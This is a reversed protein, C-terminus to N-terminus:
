PKGAMGAAAKGLQRSSSAWANISKLTELDFTGATQELKMVGLLYAYQIELYDREAQFVKEQALLVDTMTRSGLSRGERTTQLAERSSELLKRYLRIRKYDGLVTRYADAVQQRVTDQQATLNVQAQELELKAKRVSSETRGGDYVNMNFELGIRNDSRDGLNDQYYHDGNHQMVLNVTPDSGARVADLRSQAIQAQYLADQIPKNHKLAADQWYEVPRQPAFQELWGERLDDLEQYNEGSLRFLRTRQEELRDEAEVVRVDITDQYAQLEHLDTITANQQQYQRELIQLEEARVDREKRILKLDHAAALFDLYASVVNLFLKQRTDQYLNDAASVENVATTRDLDAAHDWLPKRVTVGYGIAAGSVAGSGDAHYPSASVDVKPQFASIAKRRNEEAIKYNIDASQLGADHALAAEYVQLLNEARASVGFLLCPMLAVGYIYTKM